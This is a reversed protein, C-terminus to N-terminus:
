NSDWFSEAIFGLTALCSSGQTLRAFLLLGWRPQTRPVRARGYGGQPQSITQAIEWPLECARLRPQLVCDRQSQCAHCEPSTPLSLGEPLPPFLPCREVAGVIASGGVSQRPSEREGLSLAPARGAMADKRRRILPFLIRSWSDSRGFRFKFKQPM